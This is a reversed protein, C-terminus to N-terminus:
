MEAISKPSRGHFPNNILTSLSFLPGFAITSNLRGCTTQGSLCPIPGVCVQVCVQLYLVHLPLHAGMAGYDAM